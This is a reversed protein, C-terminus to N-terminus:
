VDGPLEVLCFTGRECFSGGCTVRQRRAAFKSCFVM